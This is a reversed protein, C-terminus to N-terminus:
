SWSGWGPFGHVSQGTGSPSDDPHVYPRYYFDRQVAAFGADEALRQLDKADMRYATGAERVVNEEIMTSGLDNIGMRLSVQAIKPGQTVWSAQHNAINDLFLRAIAVTRLYEHSGCFRDKNQNKPQFTWAIFATFAGTEDQLDRLRGLHEVREELTEIHGFMMTATARMDARSVERMVDIWDGASTKKPSLKGRPRDSLIEAGGGPVSQLGAERLRELVQRIGLGSIRALGEIETPSYCHIHLHPWEARLWRLLAEHWELPLDPNIGGQMLIQSGGHSYLEAIKERLEREGLVYGQESEPPRSFACFSCGTTCINTYNINRDCNFTVSQPDTRLSRAEHAAAGLATLDHCQFLALCESESIREGSAARNLITDVETSCAM